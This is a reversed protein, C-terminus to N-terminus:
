LAAYDPFQAMIPCCNEIVRGGASKMPLGMLRCVLPRDEYIRCRGEDDLLPCAEDALAECLADFREEGLTEVAFPPRLGPEMARAKEVLARARELVVAR